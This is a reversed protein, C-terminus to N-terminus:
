IRKGMFYADHDDISFDKLRAEFQYEQKIWFCVARKNSPSTKVYLKRIGENKAYEEVYTALERGCGQKRFCEEVGLFVIEGVKNAGEFSERKYAVYGQIEKNSEAIFTSFLKNGYFDDVISNAVEEINSDGIMMSVLKVLSRRDSIEIKRIEM